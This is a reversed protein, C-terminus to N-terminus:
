GGKLRDALSKFAANISSIFSEVTNSADSVVNGAEGVINNVSNALKNLMDTLQSGGAVANIEAANLERIGTAKENESLM